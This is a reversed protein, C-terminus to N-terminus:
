FDTLDFHHVEVREVEVNVWQMFDCEMPMKFAADRFLGKVYPLMVDPVDNSVFSISTAPESVLEGEYPPNGNGDERWLGDHDMRKMGGTVRSLREVVNDILEDMYIVNYNWECGVTFTYRFRDGKLNSM